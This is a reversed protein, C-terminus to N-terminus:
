QTDLHKCTIQPAKSRTVMRGRAQNSYNCGIGKNYLPVFVFQHFSCLLHSHTNLWSSASDATVLMRTKDLRANNDGVVKHLLETTDEDTGVELIDGDTLVSAIEIIDSYRLKGGIKRIEAVAANFTQGDADLDGQILVHLLDGHYHTFCRRGHWFVGSLRYDVPVSSSKETSVYFLKARTLLRPISELRREGDKDILSVLGWDRDAGLCDWLKTNVDCITNETDEKGALVAWAPVPFVPHPRAHSIVVGTHVTNDTHKSSYDPLCFCVSILLLSLLLSVM